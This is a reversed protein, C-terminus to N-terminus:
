GGYGLEEATPRVSWSLLLHDLASLRHKEHPTGSKKVDLVSRDVSVDLYEELRDLAEGGRVLDEFRVLHADLEERRDLFGAARERWHRGFQRATMVPQDPWRDYFTGVSRYSAYSEVPDRVLLVVKASPFLWRLYLAHEATLRVEKFGWRDFGRDRAPREFLETFFTRHARALHNPEPSLTPIWERAMEAANTGSPEFREQRPYDRGFARTSGALRRVLDCHPYAEGWMFVSGSSLILRQLLTSGSRWGAALVFVPCSGSGDHKWAPSGTLHALGAAASGVNRTREWHARWEDLSGLLGVFPANLAM